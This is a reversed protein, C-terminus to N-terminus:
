LFRFRCIFLYFSFRLLHYIKGLNGPTGAQKSRYVNMWTDLRLFGMLFLKRKKPGFFTKDSDLYVSGKFFDKTSNFTIERM